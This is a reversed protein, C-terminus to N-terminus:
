FKKIPVCISVTTTGNVKNYCNRNYMEFCYGDAVQLGHKPIIYRFVHTWAKGYDENKLEFTCIIYKGKTIILRGTEGSANVNDPVTIGVSIRLKEKETIGIPDHYIIIDKSEPYNLHEIPISRILKKYLSQFLRSNGAFSGTHRVYAITMEQLIKEEISVPEITCEKTTNRKLNYLPRIPIDQHIKSNKKKKWESASIKFHKKFARSFTASDNFGCSFAIDTISSKHNLLLAAAREVRLRNIFSYLPENTFSYFIRHFHFKTFSSVEALEDLDIKEELNEEIYDIVKNVREIYVKTKDM